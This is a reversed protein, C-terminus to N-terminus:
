PVLRPRPRRGGHRPDRPDRSRTALLLLPPCADTGDDESRTSLHLLPSQGRYAFVYQRLTQCLSMRQQRMDELIARIPENMEALPTPAGVDKDPVNGRQQKRPAAFGDETSSAHRESDVPSPERSYGHSSTATSTTANTIVSLDSASPHASLPGGGALSSSHSATRSRNHINIDNFNFAPPNPSTSNPHVAQASSNFFSSDPEPSLATGQFVPPLSLNQQNLASPRASRVSTGSGGTSQTEDSESSSTRPAMGPFDASGGISGSIPMPSTATQQGFVPPAAMQSRVPPKQQTSGDSAVSLASAGAARRDFSRKTLVERKGLMERKMADLVADVIVYSGTRGVGASCHVVIPGPGKSGNEHADAVASDNLENVDRILHLLDSPTEPIDFDPWSVYQIQTVLRPPEDAHDAHSLHFSRKITARAGAAPAAAPKPAGFFFGGGDSQPAEDVGGETGIPHLKMPGYTQDSWYDGCKIQGGEHQKTLMVIVRVNQEWCLTWFDRYTSPLPGQTAIYRKNTARPQIYSANIYDSGDDVCPENLRVRAHDFPWINKFRRLPVIFVLDALTARAGRPPAHWTSQGTRGVRRWDPPSVTRSTTEAM